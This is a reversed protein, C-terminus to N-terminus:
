HIYGDLVDKAIEVLTRFDTIGRGTIEDHFTTEQDKTFKKGTEKEAQKKAEDSQRQQQARNPIRPSGKACLAPAAAGGAIAGAIGGVTTGAEAGVLAGAGGGGFTGVGPAVLTGGGGGAAAGVGGGVVFGGLAGAAAGGVIAAGTCVLPNNLAHALGPIGFGPIPNGGLGFSISAYDCGDESGFCSSIVCAIDGGDCGGPSPILTPPGQSDFGTPDQYVFPNNNNWAYGAQSLPDDTSGSYQDSSTWQLSDSSYNRAGQLFVSGDTVGDPRLYTLPPAYGYSGFGSYSGAFEQTLDRFGYTSAGYFNPPSFADGDLGLKYDNVAGSGDTTHELMGSDWHMGTYTWSGSGLPAGAMTVADGTPGWAYYHNNGSVSDYSYTTHDEVDYQYQHFPGTWYYAYVGCGCIDYAYEQAGTSLVRGDSDFSNSWDGDSGSPDQSKYGTVLLNRTDVIEAYQLPVGDFYAPISNTFNGTLYSITGQQETATYTISQDFNSVPNANHQHWATPSGSADYQIGSMSLVPSATSNLHGYGDYGYAETGGPDSKQTLRGGPTFNSTVSGGICGPIGGSATSTGNGTGCSHWANEPIGDQRYSITRSYSNAGSVQEGSAWGNSYYSYTFTAPSTIAGSSYPYGSIGSGGGGETITQINGDANYAYSWTGFQPNSVSAIQGNPDYVYNRAPTYTSSSTNSFSTSTMNGANDFAYSTTDGVATTESVLMGAAGTDYAYSHTVVNTNGPVYRLDQMVRDVSDYAEGSVDMWSGTPLSQTTLGATQVGIRGGASPAAAHPISIAVSRLTKPFTLAGPLVKPAQKKLNKQALNGKQARTLTAFQGSLTSVIRPIASEQPVPIATQNPAPTGQPAPSANSTVASEQRVMASLATVGGGSDWVSAGPLYRQTKFQNGHAYYASSNTISVTSGASLDFAYRTLWPWTDESSSGNPANTPEIVEVLRDIGDYFKQTTGQNCTQGVVCGNNTNTNTENGDADYFHTTSVGVQHESPSQTTNVSGDPYYSATSVIYSGSIGPNSNPCASNSLTADDTGASSTPQNLADYTTRSWHTGNGDQLSASCIINGYGDYLALKTPTISTSDAQTVTDGQVSTVLGYDGGEASASYSYHEHAGSPSYTDMLKGYPEESTDSYDYVARTAGSTNPCLSDSPSPSSTWNLGHANNFVADCTATMNNFSDYSILKTPRFTGASTIIQPLAVAIVNGSADFATDTENGRPDITAISNNNSDYQTNTVLWQSGTWDQTQTVRGTGDFTFTSAHGNSDAVATSGSNYTLTMWQWTQLGTAYASQLVTNTGDNPTFNVIGWDAFENLQNNGNYYLWIVDGETATGNARASLTYRPTLIANMQSGAYGYVKPISSAANNGPHDIETLNGAPDYNYTTTTTGDPAVLSSLETHGSFQAFHLTLAHGDSNQVVIQTLNEPNSADGGVWSYSLVNVDGYNRGAMLYLRGAYGAPNTSCQPTNPSWFLSSSGNSNVVSYLCSGYYYLNLHVGPPAIWGGSGNSAFDYRAGSVGDYFSIVNHTADYGLRSDLAGGSWRNGYVSPTTGDTNVVDHTSFSDYTRSFVLSSGREPVSIDTASINLDGNSVNVSATGIGPIARSVYDWWPVIGTLNPSTSLSLPSITGQSRVMTASPIRRGNAFIAGGTPTGPNPVGRSGNPLFTPHFQMEFAGRTGGRQIRPVSHSAFVNPPQITHVPRHFAPAAGHMAAFRQEALPGALRAGIATDLWRQHIAYAANMLTSAIEVHLPQVNSGMPTAALTAGGSQSIMLVLLVAAVIRKV